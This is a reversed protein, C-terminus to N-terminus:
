CLSLENPKAVARTITIESGDAVYAAFVVRQRSGTSTALHGEVSTVMPPLDNPYSFEHPYQIIEDIRQDAINELWAKIATTFLEELVLRLKM